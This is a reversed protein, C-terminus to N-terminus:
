FTDECHRLFSFYLILKPNVYEHLALIADKTHCLRHICVCESSFNQYVFLLIIHKASILYSIIM